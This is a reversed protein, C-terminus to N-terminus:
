SLISATAAFRIWVIQAVSRSLAAMTSIFPSIPRVTSYAGDSQVLEKLRNWAIRKAQRYTPAVYWALFGPTNFAAWVLEVLALHTKGFRRGAALVRFRKRCRFVESQAPGLNLQLSM